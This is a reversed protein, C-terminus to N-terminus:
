KWEQVASGWLPGPTRHYPLPHQRSRAVAAPNAGVPRYAGGSNAAIAQLLAVHQPTRAGMGLTHITFGWAAPATMREAVYESRIDGDTLLYAIDPELGAAIEMADLIRGGVCMEVTHLWHNLRQKNERTARVPEAAIEPFFMGYAQDSFFVVYFEQSESLRKVANDLELLTTEMRGDRMSGSNDVIFVVREAQSESGFFSVKGAGGQPKAAASEGSGEGEGSAPVSAMLSEASVALLDGMPSVAALDVPEVLSALEVDAALDSSADLPTDLDQEADVDVELNTLTVEAALEDWVDNDDLSATLSFGPEGFTAFTLMAFLTLLAGHAALSTVWPPRARFWELWTRPRRRRKDPRRKAQPRKAIARKTVSRKPPARRPSVDQPDCLAKKPKLPERRAPLPEAIKVAGQAECASLPAAGPAAPTIPPEPSPGEVGLEALLKAAAAEEGAAILRAVEARRRRWEAQSLKERRRAVDLPSETKM